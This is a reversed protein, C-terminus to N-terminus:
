SPMRSTPRTVSGTTGPGYYVGIDCGTADLTGTVDGGIQAATLNEGDRYFGTAACVPGFPNVTGNISVADFVFTQPGSWGGDVM